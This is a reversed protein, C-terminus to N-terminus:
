GMTREYALKTRELMNHTSFLKLREKGKICLQKRRESDDLLACLSEYLSEPLADEFYAAADTAIEPFCSARNLLMPCGAQFAELIPIGFGEYYSPYIFCAAHRYLWLLVGDTVTRSVTIDAIGLQHLLEMESKSFDRGTCVLHLGYKKLVPAVGIAFNRFNKYEALRDGVYLLYDGTFPLEVAIEQLDDEWMQGHHVVDIRSEEIGWIDMIDRKTNESIAILRDAAKCVKLKNEKVEEADPFQSSYLEHIMDHVTIVLASHKRKRKLVYPNYYTPHLVDYLSYRIMLKSLRRNKRRLFALYKRVNDTSIYLNESNFLALNTNVGYEPLKNHLISFYRSIGGVRQMDFAQYDYLVKM